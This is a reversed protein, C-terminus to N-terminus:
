RGFLGRKKKSAPTQSTPRPSQPAPRPAAPATPDDEFGLSSLERLLSATDALDRQVFPQPINSPQDQQPAEYRQESPYEEPSHVEDSARKTAGNRSFDALMATASAMRSSDSSDQPMTSDSLPGLAVQAAMMREVATLRAAEANSADAREAEARAM